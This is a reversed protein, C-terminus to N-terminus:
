EHAEESVVNNYFFLPKVAPLEIRIFKGFYISVLDQFAFEGMELVLNYTMSDSIQVDAAFIIAVTVDLVTHDNEDPFVIEDYRVQKIRLYQTNLSLNGNISILNVAEKGKSNLVDYSFHVNSKLQFTIYVEKESSM